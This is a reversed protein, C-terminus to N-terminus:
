GRPATVQRCGFTKLDETVTYCEQGQPCLQEGFDCAQYCVSRGQSGAGCVSGPPCSHAKFPSCSKRCEFIAVELRADVECVDGEACGTDLCNRGIRTFCAPAADLELCEQGQPCQGERCSPMCGPGGPTAVCRQGSPCSGLTNLECPRGCKGQVCRLGRDCMQSLDSSLHHCAEGEKRTGSSMCRHIPAGSSVNSALRCVEEQACDEDRACNSSQCSMISDRPEFVCGQGTPCDSSNACRRSETAPAADEAQQDPGLLSDAGPTSSPESPRPASVQQTAPIASVTASSAQRRADRVAGKEAHLPPKPGFPVSPTPESTSSAATAPNEIHPVGFRWNTAFGAVITIGVVCLTLRVMTAKM